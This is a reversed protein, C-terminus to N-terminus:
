SFRWNVRFGASPRAPGKGDRAMEQREKEPELMRKLEARADHLYAGVTGESVKMIRAIERYSRHELYRLVFCRRHTPRLQSVTRKLEAVSENLDSVPTPTDPPTTMVSMARRDIYSPTVTLPSRTSDPRKRRVYDLAANKAIQLIWASPKRDSGPRDIARFVKLFTEQTLDEALERHGVMRHVFDFVPTQFRRVMEDYAARDGQRARAVIEQDSYKSEPLTHSRDVNSSM